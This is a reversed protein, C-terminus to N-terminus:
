CRFVSVTSCSASCCPPAPSIFGSPARIHQMSSRRDTTMRGAVPPLLGIISRLLVSKGAGSAGVLGLIEGKKMELDVGDHIVQEGLETRLGVLRLPPMAARSM